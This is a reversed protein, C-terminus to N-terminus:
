EYEVYHSICIFENGFMDNTEDGKFLNFYKLTSSSLKERVEYNILKNDKFNKIVVDYINKKPTFLIFYEVKDSKLFCCDFIVKSDEYLGKIYELNEVTKEIKKM